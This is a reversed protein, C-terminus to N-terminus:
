PFMEFLAKCSVLVIRTFDTGLVTPGHQSLLEAAHLFRFASKALPLLSPSTLTFSSVDVDVDVPLVKCYCLIKYIYDERSLEGSENSLDRAVV